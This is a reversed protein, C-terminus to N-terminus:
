FANKMVHTRSPEILKAYTIDLPDNYDVNGFKTAITPSSIFRYNPHLTHQSKMFRILMIILTNFM